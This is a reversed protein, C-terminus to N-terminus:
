MSEIGNIGLIRQLFCDLVFIGGYTDNEFDEVWNFYRVWADSSGGNEVWSFNGGGDDYVPVLGNWAWASSADQARNLGAYPLQTTEILFYQGSDAYTEVAVQAHGPTIVLMPHMGASLLASAMVLSSEICLAQRKEFVASPTLVRQDARPTYTDMVYAIDSDAFAKQIAAVQLLTGYWDDGYQYGNIEYFQADTWESVYNAARRVLDDVVGNGSRLWAFLEYQAAYGFNDDYWLYDYLTLVQVRASQTDVVTGDPSTMRYNIQTTFASELDQAVLSPLLEPKLEFYNIGPQLSLKTTHALTLGAVEVEMVVDQTHTASVVVDLISDLSGYLNPSIREIARFEVQPAADEELKGAMLDICYAYQRAAVWSQQKLIVKERAAIWDVMQVLSRRDLESSSNTISADYFFTGAQEMLEVYRAHLDEMCQPAQIADYNGYATWTASYYDGESGLSPTEPPNGLKARVALQSQEYTMLLGLERLGAQAQQLQWLLPENAAAQEESKAALDEAWSIGDDVLKRADAVQILGPTLLESQKEHLADLDAFYTPNDPVACLIERQQELAALDQSLKIVGQITEQLEHTRADTYKQEATHAVEDVFADGAGPFTPLAACSALSLAVVCTACAYTFVKRMRLM